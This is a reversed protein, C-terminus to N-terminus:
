FFTSGSAEPNSVFLFDPYLSQDTGKGTAGFSFLYRDLEEFFARLSYSSLLARICPLIL